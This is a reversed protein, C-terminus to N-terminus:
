EDMKNPKEKPKEVEANKELFAQLGKPSPVNCGVSDEAM